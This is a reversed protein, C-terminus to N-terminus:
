DGSDLNGTHRSDHRFQPWDQHLPRYRYPLKWVAVVTASSDTKPMGIGIEVRGDDDLDTIFMTNPENWYTYGGSYNFPFGDVLEGDHHYAYVDLSDNAGYAGCLIEQDFDGDIDGIIYTNDGNSIPLYQPWGPKNTGDRGDIVYVMSGYIEPDSSFVVERHGDNDLDGASIQGYTYSVLKKPWGTALTMDHNVVVAGGYGTYFMIEPRCDGDIDGATLNGWVQDIDLATLDLSYDPLVNGRIDIAVVKDRSRATPVLIEEVGDGNVDAVTLHRYSLDQLIVPFRRLPLGYRDLAVVLLNENYTFTTVIEMFGDHDLDSALGCDYYSPYAFLYPWGPLSLARPSLVDVQSAMVIIRDAMRPGLPALIPVQAYRSLPWAPSYPQGDGRILFVGNGTTWALEKRSDGDVDGVTVSDEIEGNFVAPFGPQFPFDLKPRGSNSDDAAPRDITRSGNVGAPLPLSFRSVFADEGLYGPGVTGQTVPFAFSDTTGSVALWSGPQIVLGGRSEIGEAGLFTSYELSSLQTSLKALFCDKRGNFTPDLATAATTPFNSSGTEGVVYVWGGDCAIRLGYDYKEGGIFTSALITALNNDLATVFVDKWGNFSNDYAPAVIPFNSSDTEGTVYVAGSTDVALARGYDDDSGGFAKGRYSTRSLALDYRVVMVDYTPYLSDAPREGEIMGDIECGDSGIAITTVMFIHGLGDLTMGTLGSGENNQSALVRHLAPDLKLLKAWTHRAATNNPTSMYGTSVMVGDALAELAITGESDPGGYYTAALLQNLGIDFTAVFADYSGGHNAQYAGAPIPLDPSNSKGGIFVNGQGDLSIDTAEDDYRGGFYTSGLITSLDPSLKIVFADYWGRYGPFASTATTPFGAQTFGTLYLNGADDKVMATCSDFGRGGVYSGIYDRSERSFLAREATAGAPWAAAALLVALCAAVIAAPEFRPRATVSQKKM